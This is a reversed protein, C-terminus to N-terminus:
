KQDIVPGKVSVRRHFRKLVSQIRETLSSLSLNYECAGKLALLNVGTHLKAYM